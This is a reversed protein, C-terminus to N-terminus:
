LGLAARRALAAVLHRPQVPAPDDLLRVPTERTAILAALPIAALTAALDGPSVECAVPCVRGAIRPWAQLAVRGDDLPDATAYTLHDRRYAAVAARASALAPSTAPM